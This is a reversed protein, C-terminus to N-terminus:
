ELFGLKLMWMGRFELMMDVIGIRDVLVGIIFFSGVGLRLEICIVCRM